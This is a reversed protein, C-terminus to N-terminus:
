LLQHPSGLPLKNLNGNWSSGLLALKHEHINLPVFLGQGAPEAAWPLCSSPHFKFKDLTMHLSVVVSVCRGPHTPSGWSSPAPLFHPANRSPGSRMRVVSSEASESFSDEGGPIFASGEMKAFSVAKQIKRGNEQSSTAQYCNSYSTSVRLSPPLSGTSSVCLSTGYEELSLGLSM